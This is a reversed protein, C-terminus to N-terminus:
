KHRKVPHKLLYGSRTNYRMTVYRGLRREEMGGNSEGHQVRRNIEKAVSVAGEAQKLRENRRKM